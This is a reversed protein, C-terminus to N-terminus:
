ALLSQWGSKENLDALSATSASALADADYGGFCLADSIGLSDTMPMALADTEPMSLPSAVSPNLNATVNYFVSGSANAKTSKATM